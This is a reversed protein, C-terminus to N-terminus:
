LAATPRARRKSNTMTQKLKMVLSHNRHSSTLAGATLIILKRRGSRRLPLVVLVMPIKEPSGRKPRPRKQANSFNSM